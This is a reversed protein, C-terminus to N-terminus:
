HECQLDVGHTANNGHHMSKIRYVLVKRVNEEGLLWVKFM